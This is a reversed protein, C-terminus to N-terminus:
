LPRRIPEALSPTGGPQGSQHGEVYQRWREVSNGLDQPAVKRLSGVARYQMAPDRDELAAGLTPIAAPDRTEGLARAATLRVDVDVDAAFVQRLLTTAEPARQRALAKCVAIRVGADSDKAAEGLAAIAAPGPYAGLAAVMHARILPDPERPFAAALESAIRERAAPDKPVAGAALKKLDAIRQSPPTIGPVTDAVKGGLPWSSCGPLATGLLALIM